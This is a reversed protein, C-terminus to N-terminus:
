VPDADAQDSDPDRADSADSADRGGGAGALLARVDVLTDIEAPDKDDRYRVVRAFRLAVGGPYRTSVQAGDLAIEVVQEPRVWVIIGERGRELSLFRETQWRLLEDTLGKFTKGVMVFAGTDPDRAGLHLNSLWGKRRGHGWEVGLVVLDLTRVPKVKVWSKGRRGAEYSSDVAKVMVGEHGARLADAAFGDAATPDDTVIGPVRARGVIRDLEALRVTFPEDVLDRGDVHLVDFFFARLVDARSADAGFRSMTDQFARPRDDEDLMLSEGDLVVSEVPFSRALAVVDPVRHTIDNLNRTYVWVDEGRRHVQIRAGDLKWEVSARGGVDGLAVSASAASSALMPRLPRGVELRVASLGDVGGAMAIAATNGLDGGFMLARRVLASPVEAAKAIAELVVGELAGQRLDGLLLRRLFATEDPTARSFLGLLLSARAAQSGAGSISVLEDLVADVDLPRLTATQTPEVEIAGVTAWGVGIRSQRLDAALMTAVVAVEGPEAARLLAAMAATKETRKSTSAVTRSTVVLDALLM